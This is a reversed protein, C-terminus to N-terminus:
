RVKECGIFRHTKSELNIRCITYDTLHAQPLFHQSLGLLSDSFTFFNILHIILSPNPYPVPPFATASAPSATTTTAMDRMM